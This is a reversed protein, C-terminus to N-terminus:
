RFVLNLSRLFCLTTGRTGPLSSHIAEVVATLSNSLSGLAHEVGVGAKLATEANSAAESLSLAGLTAAVGKLSHAERAATAADGVALATRIATVAEAQRIAFKRLLSEYRERKGGVQKLGLSTDIGAIKLTDADPDL